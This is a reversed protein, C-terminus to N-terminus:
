PIADASRLIRRHARLRDGFRVVGDARMRAAHDRLYGDLAARDRLRYQVCLAIWGSAPSPDAVEFVEAGIFGPLALMQRVHEALWKRYAAAEGSAIEIDVEYIVM